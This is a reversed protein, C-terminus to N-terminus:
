GMEGLSKGSAMSEWCLASAQAGAEGGAGFRQGKGQRAPSTCCGWGREQVGGLARPCRRPPPRERLGGSEQGRPVSRLM